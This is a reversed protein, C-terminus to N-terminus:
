NLVLNDILRVDNLYAAVLAVLKKKGDWKEQLALTATDAIEIYDTKFGAVSLHEAAKLKMNELLGAKLENKLMSLTEYIKVALEKEKANLRANRSSMALGSTERLTPCIVLATHISKLEILKRIVMCQQFDKQGLYLKDPAVIELLRDVVQCVGQFHGPRYKGELVTELYGLEYHPAVFGPPYIEKVDPLFLVDCGWKELMDIDTEITIPYKKFDDPNNFQTPNVFISCATLQNEKKSQEVLSIHGNHLAGMTPVFGVSLGNAKSKKIFTALDASTKFIIM